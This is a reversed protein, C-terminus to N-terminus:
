SRLRKKLSARKASELPRIAEEVRRLQDAIQGCLLSKEEMLDPPLDPLASLERNLDLALRIRPMGLSVLSQGDTLRSVTALAARMQDTAHRAWLATPDVGLVQALREAAEFSLSRTGVEFAGVSTDSMGVERALRAMSWGKAERYETLASM